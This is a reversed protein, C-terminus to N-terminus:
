GARKRRQDGLWDPASAAHDHRGLAIPLLDFLMTPRAAHQEDKVFCLRGKPEAPIKGELM